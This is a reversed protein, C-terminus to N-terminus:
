DLSKQKLTANLLIAFINYLIGLAVFFFIPGVVYKYFWVCNVKPELAGMKWLPWLASPAVFLPLHRLYPLRKRM